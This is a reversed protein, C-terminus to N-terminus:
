IFVLFLIILFRLDSYFYGFDTCLIRALRSVLTTGTDSTYATWDSWLQHLLSKLYTTCYPTSQVPKGRLMLCCYVGYNTGSATASHIWAFETAMSHLWATIITWSMPTSVGRHVIATYDNVVGAVQTWRLGRELSRSWILSLTPTESICYYRVPGQRHILLYENLGLYDRQDTRRPM